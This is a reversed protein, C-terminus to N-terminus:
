RVTFSRFLALLRALRQAEWRCALDDIGKKWDAITKGSFKLAFERGLHAERVEKIKHRPVEVLKVLVGKGDETYKFEFGCERDLFDGVRFVLGKDELWDLDAALSPDAARFSWDSKSHM